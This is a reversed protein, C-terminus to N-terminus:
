DPCIKDRALDLLWQRQLILYRGLQTQWHRYVKRQRPYLRFILCCFMREVQYKFISAGATDEDWEADIGFPGDNQIHNFATCLTGADSILDPVTGTLVEDYQLYKKRRAAAAALITEEDYIYDMNWITALRYASAVEGGEGLKDLAFKRIKKGALLLPSADTPQLLGDKQIKEVAKDVRDVQREIIPLQRKHIVKTITDYAHHLRADIYRSKGGQEYLKTAMNDALRHMREEMAADVLVEVALVVAEESPDGRVSLSKHSSLCVQEAAHWLSYPIAARVLMVPSLYPWPGIQCSLALAASVKQKMIEEGGDSSSSSSSDSKEISFQIAKAVMESYQDDNRENTLKFARAFYTLINLDLSDSCSSHILFTKLVSSAVNKSSGATQRLVKSRSATSAIASAAAKSSSSSSFDSSLALAGFVFSIALANSEKGTSSSEEEQQIIIREAMQQLAQWTQKKGLTSNTALFCFEDAVKIASEVLLRETTMSTTTTTPQPPPPLVSNLASIASKMGDENVVIMSNSSVQQENKICELLGFLTESMENNNNNDDCNTQHHEQMIIIRRSTFKRASCYLPIKNVTFSNTQQFSYVSLLALRSFLTKM